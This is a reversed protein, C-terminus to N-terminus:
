TRSQAREATRSATRQTLPKQRSDDAHLIAPPPARPRARWARAAGAAGAALPALYDSATQVRGAWGGTRGAGAPHRVALKLVRTVSAKSEQRPFPSGLVTALDAREGLIVAALRPAYRPATPPDTQPSPPRLRASLRTPRRGTDLTRWAGRRRRRPLGGGAVVVAPSTTAACGAGPPVASAAARRAPPGGGCRASGGVKEGVSEEVVGV